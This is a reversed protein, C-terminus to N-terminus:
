GKLSFQKFTERYRLATKAVDPMSRFQKRIGKRRVQGNSQQTIQWSAIPYSIFWLPQQFIYSIFALHIQRTEVCGCQLQLYVQKSEKEGRQQWVSWSFISQHFFVHPARTVLFVYHFPFLLQLYWNSVTNEWFEISNPEQCDLRLCLLTYFEISNVDLWRFFLIGPFMRTCGVM